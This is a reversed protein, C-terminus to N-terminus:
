LSRLFALLAERDIAPMTRFAEKSAESEGGHWLIAEALTQARGDHLFSADLLVTQALGVGWLPSTRWETGSALFDPRGDALGEGMDHLLLDTYPHFTQESLSAVEHPGTQLTEVHCSACGIDRFLQEGHRVEPDDWSARQPVALTQTYFTTAELTRADIDSSGDPEPFLPSTVGMDDAYAGAAQQLLSPVNAKWGFRGFATAERAADWVYNARGSVGDGDLDDPDALALLTEEPVAELLGLGIVPPPIRPSTMVHAPLPSGDMLRIDFIPRRLLYPQGDGYHGTIEEWRIDVTVEAEHGAIAHDQLQTGFDGFPAPGGPVAPEGDAVSVRVLLPSALPGQGAIPLGRGDGIHCARCANNNFLPGLGPQITSPASVFKAEFARDGELHLDLEAETLLPAPLGYAGSTRNEITTDGGARPAGRGGSEESPCGIMALAAPLSLAIPLARSRVLRTSPPRRNMM